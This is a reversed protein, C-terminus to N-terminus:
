VWSQDWIWNKNALQIKFNFKLYFKLNVRLNSKFEIKIWSNFRLISSSISNWILNLILSLNEYKWFEMQCVWFEGWLSDLFNSQRYMELFLVDFMAKKEEEVTSWWGRSSLGPSVLFILGLKCTCMSGAKEINCRGITAQPVVFLAFSVCFSFSLSLSLCFCLYLCLSPSLIQLALDLFVWWSSKRSKSWRNTVVM